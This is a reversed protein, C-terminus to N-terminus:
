FIITLIIAITTKRKSSDCSKDYIGSDQGIIILSSKDSHYIFLLSPLAFPLSRYIDIPLVQDLHIVIFLRCSNPINIKM